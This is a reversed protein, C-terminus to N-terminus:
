FDCSTGPLPSSEFMGSFPLFFALKKSIMSSNSKVNQYLM